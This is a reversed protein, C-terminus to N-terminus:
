KGAAPKPMKFMADDIKPNLEVADVTTQSVVNGASVTKMAFPLKLGQIDRYNSLENEIAGMPSDGVIKIELSTKADLYLQQVRHEKSTLKLHYVERGGLNEVGVLELEYGKAKYNVLPSDFDSQMKIEDAQPGSIAVPQGSGAFPNISWATTGDFANVIKQGAMEIEERVLNPRKGYVTITGTMGQFTVHATQKMTLVAELREAGGKAQVNKAVLDDVNQAALQAGALVVTACAMVSLVRRNM